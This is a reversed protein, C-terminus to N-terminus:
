LDNYCHHVDSDYLFMVENGSIRVTIKKVIARGLNKVVTRNVNESNFTIRFALRATGPVIM